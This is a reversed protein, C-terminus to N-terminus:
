SGIAHKEEEKASKEGMAVVVAITICKAILCITNLNM